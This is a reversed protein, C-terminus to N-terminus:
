ELIDSVEDIIKKLIHIILSSEKKIIAIRDPYSTESSSLAIISKKKKLIESLDWRSIPINKVCINKFVASVADAQNDSITELLALVQKKSAITLLQLFPLQQKVREGM